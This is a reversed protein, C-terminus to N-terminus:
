NKYYEKLAEIGFDHMYMKNRDFLSDFDFTLVDTQRTTKDSLKDALELLTNWTGRRKSTLYKSIDYRMIGAKTINDNKYTAFFHSLIDMRVNFKELDTVETVNYVNYFLTYFLDLTRMTIHDKSQVPKKNTVVNHYARLKAAFQAFLTDVNTAILWDVSAEYDIKSPSFKAQIQSLSTM